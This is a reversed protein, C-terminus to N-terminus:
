EISTKWVQSPCAAPWVFSSLADIFVFPVLCESGWEQMTKFHGGLCVCAYGVLCRKGGCLSLDNQLSLVSECACWNIHWSICVGLILDIPDLQLFGEVDAHSGRCWKHEVVKSVKPCESLQRRSYCLLRSDLQLDAHGNLREDGYPMLLVGGLPLSQPQTNPSSAGAIPSFCHCKDKGGRFRPLDASPNSEAWLTGDIM